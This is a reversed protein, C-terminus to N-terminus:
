LKEDKFSELEMMLTMWEEEFQALDNQYQKQKQYLAQLELNQTDLYLNEDCLKEDIKQLDKRSKEMELEIKKIRNQAVKINKYDNVKSKPLYAHFSETKINTLWQYYDELDGPFIELRGQHVLYFQNVSTNLLHRDHSILIVAGQYSQLAMVIAERIDLDLHNTPEDLLLIDPKLWIMKALALRAKEGGSFSSIRRFVMDGQFQYRGLYNRIVDEKLKVDLEQIIQFPTSQIDLQDLQHQAYYGIRLKSQILIEGALPPIEGVLSKILTSKGQGNLGLIGIRDQARLELHVQNLIPKNKDYGLQLNQCKIMPNKLDQIDFFSFDFEKDLHAQAILEIKEIAKMRSQAQKAKTAKAKFREVFSMMHRIKDQQREYLTNQMKLQEVRAREFFSYNGSYLKFKQQEIHLIKDVVHDLFERDHSIVIVTAKLNKLWKELWLIAELDLHNTPEDLLYLSAPTMLCRALGLRMQWGGSFNSIPYTQQEKSFGLGALISGAMAPKAYGQINEMVEHMHMLLSADQALEAKQLQSLCEVYAKDGSLVYDLATMDTQPIEQVLDSIVLNNQIKFEGSDPLIEGKIMNFLTSKGCGNQGVVGVKQNEFLVVSTHDFILKTGRQLYIQSFSLM